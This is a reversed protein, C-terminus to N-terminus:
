YFKAFVLDSQLFSEKMQRFCLEVFFIRGQKNKQNKTTDTETLAKQHEPALRDYFEKLDNKIFNVTSEGQWSRSESLCIVGSGPPFVKKPLDGAKVVKLVIGNHAERSVRLTSYLTFAWNGQMQFKPTDKLKKVM